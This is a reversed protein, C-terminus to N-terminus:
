QKFSNHVPDLIKEENGHYWSCATPHVHYNFLISQLDVNKQSKPNRLCEIAESVFFKNVNIYFTTKEIQYRFVTM